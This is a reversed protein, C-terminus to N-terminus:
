VIALYAIGILWFHVKDLRAYSYQAYGICDLRAKCKANRM